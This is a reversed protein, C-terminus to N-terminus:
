RRLRSQVRVVLTRGYRDKGVAKALYRGSRLRHRVRIKPRRVKNAVNFPKSRGVRVWRKGKRKYLRVTVNTIRDNLGRVRLRAARGRRARALGYLHRARLRPVANVDVTPLTAQVSKLQVAGTARQRDYVSTGAAVQVRFRATPGGHTAIAELPRDV